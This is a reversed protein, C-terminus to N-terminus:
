TSIVHGQLESASAIGVFTIRTSDSLTITTSGGAYTAESLVSAAAASGYDALWVTDNANFNVV